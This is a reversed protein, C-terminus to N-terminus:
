KLHQLLATTSRLLMAYLTTFGEQGGYYPDPVDEGVGEADYTRMLEVPCDNTRLDVIDAYNSSDMAIIHDFEYFDSAQIQRGKHDTSIGNEALTQLARLDPRDGVHYAATGASDCRISDNLGQADILKQM